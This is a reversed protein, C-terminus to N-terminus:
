FINEGSNSSLKEILLNVHAYFVGKENCFGRAVKRIASSLKELFVVKLVVKQNVLPFM